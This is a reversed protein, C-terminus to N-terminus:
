KLHTLLGVLFIGSPIIFFFSDFRDLFGGHGPLIAGSDKIDVARKLSSEFLDGFSGSICILIGLLCIDWFEFGSHIMFFNCLFAALICGILGGVSGEWTKKPSIAPALPTKGIAKGTFYAFTDNSWNMIIFGLIWYRSLYYDKSLFLVVAILPLVIYIFGNTPTACLIANEKKWFVLFLVLFIYFVSIGSIWFAFHRFDPFFSVLFAMGVFTSISLIMLFTKAFNSSNNFHRNWEGISFLLIIFLLITASWFNFLITSIVVVGLILGTISRKLM